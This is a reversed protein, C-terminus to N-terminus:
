VLVGVARGQRRRRRRRGLVRLPARRLVSHLLRAAIKERQFLVSALPSLLSSLPSSIPSSLLPSPLPPCYSRLGKTAGQLFPTEVPIVDRLQSGPQHRKRRALLYRRGAGRGGARGGEAGRGGNRSGDQEAEAEWILM